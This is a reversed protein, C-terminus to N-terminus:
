VISGNRIYFECLVKTPIHLANAFYVGTELLTERWAHAGYEISTCKTDVIALSYCIKCFLAVPHIFIKDNKLLKIQCAIGSM